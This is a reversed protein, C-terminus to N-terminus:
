HEMLLILHKMYFIGKKPVSLGVVLGVILAILILATVLSFVLCMKRRGIDDVSEVEDDRGRADKSKHEANRKNLELEERGTAIYPNSHEYEQLATGSSSAGSSGPGLTYANGSVEYGGAHFGHKKGKRVQLQSISSLLLSFESLLIVLLLVIIDTVM